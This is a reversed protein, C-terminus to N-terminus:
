RHQSIWEPPSQLPFVICFSDAREKFQISNSRIKTNGIQRALRSQASQDSEPIRSMAKLGLVAPTTTM